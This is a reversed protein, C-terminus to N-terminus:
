MGKASPDSGPHPKSIGSIQANFPKSSIDNTQGESCGETSMHMCCTINTKSALSEAAVWTLYGVEDRLRSLSLSLFTVEYKPRSTVVVIDLILDKIRDDSDISQHHRPLLCHWVRSAGSARSQQNDRSLRFKAAAEAEMPLRPGAAIAKAEVVVVGCLERVGLFNVLM